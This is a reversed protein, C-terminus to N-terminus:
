NKLELKYGVGHVNSIKLNEDDKLKKRLKSIYTDLSRGVVVGQDEWIRKSLEERTVVGNINAVLLELIECEKRSLTIEEAEKILKLQEPYFSFQGLRLGETEQLKKQKNYRKFVTASLFVLAALLGYFLNRYFRPSEGGTSRRSESFSVEILYCSKPIDRSLCPVITKEKDNSILYSYVVERQECERVEVTYSGQISAQELGSEIALVLADPEFGIPQNFSIEYISDALQRIPAILTTSDQRSLLLQNAAERLAIKM